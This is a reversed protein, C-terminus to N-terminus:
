RRVGALEGLTQALDASALLTEGVLIADFGAEALLKVDDASGIGSESVTVVEEPLLRRLRVSNELDVQFTRLDRNNIGVIRAGVELARGIEEETFTEVLVDLGLETATQFLERFGADDLARVIILVADAGSRAALEAQRPDVLFDKYMVPVTVQEDTAIQSVLAPSGGFFRDDALVSIAGAGFAAYDRALALGREASWLAGKSPSKPKVEAIVTVTDKRLAERLAGPRVPVPRRQPVGATLATDNHWVARKHVLIEDLYM